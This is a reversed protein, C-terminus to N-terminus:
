KALEGIRAQAAAFGDLAVSFTIPEPNNSPTVIIAMEKAKKMADTAVTPFSVPAICGDPVCTTFPVPQGLPKEDLTLKVGAALALGFPLVLVGDTKGDSPARLEIAFSRQGTQQNGRVQSFSCVKRGEALRCSVSWAGYTEQISSAGGPLTEGAAKASQALAPAAHRQQASAPAIACMAASMFIALGHASRPSISLIMHQKSAILTQPTRDDRGDSRGARAAIPLLVM